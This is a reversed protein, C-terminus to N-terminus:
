NITRHTVALRSKYYRRKKVAFNIKYSLRLFWETIIIFVIFQVALSMFDPISNFKIIIQDLNFYSSDVLFLGLLAFPMMKAVDKALDESYYAVTRIAAVLAFSISLIEPIEYNRTLALMMLAFGIFFLFAVFPFMFFYKLFEVARPHSRARIKFCDRRAIFRYFHWIIVSYIVISLAFYLLSIILSTDGIALSELSFLSGWGAFEEFAM